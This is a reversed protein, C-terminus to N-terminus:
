KDYTLSFYHLLEEISEMAKNNLLEGNLDQFAELEEISMQSGDKFEGSSFYADSFDGYDSLDIGEVTLSKLDVAKGNVEYLLQSKKNTRKTM